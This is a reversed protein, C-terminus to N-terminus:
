PTPDVPVGCYAYKGSGVGFEVRIKSVTQWEGLSGASSVILSISDAGSTSSLTVELPVPPTGVGDIDTLVVKSVPVEAPWTIDIWDIIYSTSGEPAYATATYGASDVLGGSLAAAASPLGITVLAAATASSGIALTLLRRRDLTGDVEVLGADILEDLAESGGGIAGIAAARDEHSAADDLALWVQAAAGELSHARARRRDLAAIGSGVPEWRIHMGRSAGSARGNGDYSM